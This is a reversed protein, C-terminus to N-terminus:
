SYRNGSTRFVRDIQSSALAGEPNNSWGIGITYGNDNTIRCRWQQKVKDYEVHYTYLEPKIQSM